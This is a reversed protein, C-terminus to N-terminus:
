PKIKSAHLYSDLAAMLSSYKMALNGDNAESKTTPEFNYPSTPQMASFTEKSNVFVGRNKTFLTRGNNFAFSKESNEFISRGFTEYKLNAFSLEYLSPWIDQHSSYSDQFSKIQDASLQKRLGPPAYLYFPVAARMFTEANTFNKIWFTHDATAAIITKPGLL